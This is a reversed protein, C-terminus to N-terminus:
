KKMEWSFRICRECSAEKESFTATISAAPDKCMADDLKKAVVWCQQCHFM